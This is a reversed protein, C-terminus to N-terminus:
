DTGRLKPVTMLVRAGLMREVDREDRFTHNFYEALASYGIGLFLGILAALGLILGRRPGVPEVPAKAESVVRVGSIKQTSLLDSVRLEEGKKKYSMFNGEAMGRARELEGLEATRQELTALNARKERLQADLMGREKAASSMKETLVALLNQGKTQRLQAMRPVIQQLEPAGEGMTATLQSRRALLEFYQRDLASLDAVAHQRVEPTQIWGDGGALAQVVADRMAKNEHFRMTAQNLRGEIESTDRLLIEKQLPLNTIGYDGRFKSLAADAETLKSENVKIQERYFGESQANQSIRVYKSLFEAAFTNVAAAAFQPDPWGFGILIIDSDEMAQIQLSGKLALVMQEDPSLETKLGFWYLPRSLWNRIRGLAQKLEYKTRKFWGEPPPAPQMMPRLREFVAYALRNDKLIEIANHIDQGREQFLINYNDKALTEIGALKEKGVRVLLRTEAVYISEQFALWVGTGMLSLLVVLLVRNKHRFIVNLLDELSVRGLQRM